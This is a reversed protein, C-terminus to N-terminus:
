SVRRPDLAPLDSTDGITFFRNLPFCTAKRELGRFWLGYWFPGSEAPKKTALVGFAPYGSDAAPAIM